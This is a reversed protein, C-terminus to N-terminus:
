IERKQIDTETLCVRNKYLYWLHEHSIDSIDFDPKKRGRDYIPRSESIELLIPLIEVLEPHASLRIVQYVM